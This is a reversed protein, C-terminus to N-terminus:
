TSKFYTKHSVKVENKDYAVETKPSHHYHGAHCFPTEIGPRSTHQTPPFTKRFCSHKQDECENHQLKSSGAASFLDESKM